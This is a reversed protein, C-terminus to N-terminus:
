VSVPVAESYKGAQLLEIADEYKTAPTSRGFGLSSVLLMACLLAVLLKKSNATKKM